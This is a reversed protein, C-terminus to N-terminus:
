EGILKQKLQNITKEDVSDSSENKKYMVENKGIITVGNREKKQYPNIIDMLNGLKPTYISIELLKKASNFVLDCDYDKLSNEWNKVKAKKLTIDRPIFGHFESEIFLMLKVVDQRDM